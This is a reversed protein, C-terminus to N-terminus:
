TFPMGFRPDNRGWRGAGGARTRAGVEEYEDQYGLLM